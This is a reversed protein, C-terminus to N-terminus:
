YTPTCLIVWMILESCFVKMVVLIIPANTQKSIYDLVYVSERAFSTVVLNISCFYVTMWRGKNKRM